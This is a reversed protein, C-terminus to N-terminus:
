SNWEIYEAYRTNATGPYKGLSETGLPLDKSYAFLAITLFSNAFLGVAMIGCMIWALTVDTQWLYWTMFVGFFAFFAFIAAVCGIEEKSIGAQFRGITTHWIRGFWGPSFFTDQSTQDM